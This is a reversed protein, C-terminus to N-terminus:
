FKVYIKCILSTYVFVDFKYNKLRFKSFSCFSVFVNFWNMFFHIGKLVVGTLWFKSVIKMKLYIDSTNVLLYIRKFSRYYHKLTCQQLLLLDKFFIVSKLTFNSLFLSRLNGVCRLQEHVYWTKSIFM